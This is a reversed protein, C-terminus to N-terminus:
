EVNFYKKRFVSIDDMAKLLTNYNIVNVVDCYYNLCTFSRLQRPLSCCHNKIDFFGNNPKIYNKVEKFIKDDNSFFYGGRSWCHNCCGRNKTAFAMVGDKSSARVCDSCIFKNINEFQRETIHILHDYYKKQQLTLDPFVKNMVDQAWEPIPNGLMDCYKYDNM